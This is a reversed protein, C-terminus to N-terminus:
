QPKNNYHCECGMDGHKKPMAPTIKSINLQFKANTALKWGGLLDSFKLVTAQFTVEICGEHLETRNVMNLLDILKM